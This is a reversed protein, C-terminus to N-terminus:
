GGDERTSDIVVLGRSSKNLLLFGRDLPRKEGKRPVVQGGNDIGDEGVSYIILGNDIKKIKMKAHDFPDDPIETLYIPVLQDLTLPFEGKSLRFREAAIGIRAAQIEAVCILHYTISKLVPTLLMNAYMHIDGFTSLELQLKNKAALLKAPDDGAEIVWGFMELGQQRSGRKTISFVADLFGIAENTQDFLYIYLARDSWLAWKMSHLKLYKSLTNDLQQLTKADLTGVRLISALIRIATSTQRLHAMFSPEETLPSVVDFLTPLIAAAAETDGDILKLTADLFLLQTLSQIPPSTETFTAMREQATGNYTIKFRGPELNHITMLGDLALKRPAFYKRTTNIADRPIGSFFNIALGNTM